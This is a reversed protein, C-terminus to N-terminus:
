DHVTYPVVFEEKKKIVQVGKGDKWRKTNRKQEKGMVEGGGKDAGYVMIGFELEVEKGENSKRM